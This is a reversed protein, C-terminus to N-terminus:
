EVRWRGEGVEGSAGTHSGGQAEERGWPGDEGDKWAQRM